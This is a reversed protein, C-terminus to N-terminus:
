YKEEVLVGETEAALSPEAAVVVDEVTSMNAGVTNISSGTAGVGTAAGVAGSGAAGGGGAAGTSGNASAPRKSPIACVVSGDSEEASPRLEAFYSNPPLGIVGRVILM